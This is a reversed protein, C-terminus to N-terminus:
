AAALFTSSVAVTVSNGYWYLFDTKGLLQRYNDMVVPHPWFMSVLSRMQEEGKFSTVTMWYFPFVVIVLLTLLVGYSSMTQARELFSKDMPWERTGVRRMYRALVIIVFALAPLMYLAVAIAEGLRQAGFAIEYTLVPLVQTAGGPGGKTLIYVIQFDNFTWITSLLTVIIVINRLSSLTVYRFRQLANAGDVAAAEYLEAPIPRTGARFSHACLPS